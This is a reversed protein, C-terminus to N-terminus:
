APDIKRAIGGLRRTITLYVRVESSIISETQDRIMDLSILTGCSEEFCRYSSLQTSISTNGIGDITESSFVLRTDLQPIFLHDVVAPAHLRHHACMPLHIYGLLDALNGVRPDYQHQNSCSFKMLLLRTSLSNTDHRKTHLTEARHTVISSCHDCARLMVRDTRSSPTSGLCRQIWEFNLSRHVCLWIRHTRSCSRVATGSHLDWPAFQDLSNIAVCSCCIAFGNSVGCGHGNCSDIAPTGGNCQWCLLCAKHHPGKDRLVLHLFDLKDKDSINKTKIYLAERLRTYTDRIVLLILIHQNVIIQLLEPPMNILSAMNSAM